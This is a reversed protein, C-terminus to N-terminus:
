TNECSGTDKATQVQDQSQSSPAQFCHSVITYDFLCSILMLASLLIGEPLYHALLQFQSHQSGRRELHSSSGWDNLPRENKQELVRAAPQSCNDQAFSSEAANRPM